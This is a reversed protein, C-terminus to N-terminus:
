FRRGPGGPGRGGGFSLQNPGSAGHRRLYEGYVLGIVLGALHALHAVNGGMVNVTSVIGLVSLMAYGITIVWLPVPLLFYLYVTLNPNLVTLVGLIALIAGSAGLVGTPDGMAASLVVQGLGAVVGSVLFLVAFAKSGIRRELVPGFFYLVISNGAIHFFGTPDHAFVSTVWTWVYLLDSSHLVFLTQHLAGGGVLLAAWQLLFTVWMLALFTYSVNGRFYGLVGGPKGVTADSGVGPVRNMVGRSRDNRNGVSDDFGSDFVGKPDDWNELGPCAHNEPLRHDGCFTGGCYRCRYPM